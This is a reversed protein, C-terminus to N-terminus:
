RTAILVLILAGAGALAIKTGTGMGTQVPMIPIGPQVVAPKPALANLVAAIGSGVNSITSTPASIKTPTAFIDVRTWRQGSADTAFGPSIPVANVDAPFGGSTLDLAGLGSFPRRVYSM